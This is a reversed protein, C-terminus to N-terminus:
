LCVLNLFNQFQEKELVQPKHYFTEFTSVRSWGAVKMIEDLPIGMARAASTSAARTSHAKFRSIDIGADCLVEKIWRAITTSSAPNHPKRLAIFLKTVGDPRLSRTVRLYNDLQVYRHYYNVSSTEDRRRCVM